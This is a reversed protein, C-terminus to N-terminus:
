VTAAGADIPMLHRARMVAAAIWWAVPIAPRVGIVTLDNETPV